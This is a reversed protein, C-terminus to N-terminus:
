RASWGGKLQDECWMATYTEEQATLHQPLRLLWHCKKWLLSTGLFSTLDSERRPISAECTTAMLNMMLNGVTGVAVSRGKSTRMMMVKSTELAEVLRRFNLVVLETRTPMELIRKGRSNSNWAGKFSGLKGPTAGSDLCLWGRPRQCFTATPHRRSHLHWRYGILRSAMFNSGQEPITFQNASSWTKSFYCLAGAIQQKLQTTDMAYDKWIRRQLICVARARWSAQLSRM